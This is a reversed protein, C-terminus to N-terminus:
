NGLFFFEVVENRRVVRGLATRKLVKRTKEPYEEEKNRMHM